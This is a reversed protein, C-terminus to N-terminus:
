ELNPEAVLLNGLFDKAFCDTAVNYQPGLENFQEHGADEVHNQAPVQQHPGEVPSHHVGPGVHHGRPQEQQGAGKELVQLYPVVSFVWERYHSCPNGQISIRM